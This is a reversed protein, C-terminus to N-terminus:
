HGRPAKASRRRRGLLPVAAVIALAASTPEPVAVIGRFSENAGATVIENPTGSLTAAAGTDTLEYIGGPTTAYLDEEETSGVYTGIGTLGTVNPLKVVGDLTYSGSSLIFKEVAGTGGATSAGSYNYSNDAVYLVDPTLSGDLTTLVYSYPGAVATNYNASGSANSAPPLETYSQGGTTPLSGGAGVLAVRYTLGSGTSVYLNDDVVEVDRNNTVATSIVTGAGSGGFPTEIIGSNAGALYLSNGDQSAASRINNGNFATTTTSTDVDGFLDVRAIERLYNTTGGSSNSSAIGSVGPAADYGTALLYQGNGSITLGGESSATGSATLPNNSGSASTPLPISQVLTGTTTYEDLFVATSASTLTASGTGVRYVVLDNTSIPAASARVAAGAVVAM